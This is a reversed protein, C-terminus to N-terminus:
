ELSLRESGSRRTRENSVVFREALRTDDLTEDLMEPGVDM